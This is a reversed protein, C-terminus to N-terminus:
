EEKKRGFPDYPNEEDRDLAERRHMIDIAQDALGVALAISRLAFFGVAFVLLKMFRGKGRMHLMYCVACVGQMVFVTDFIQSFVYLMTSMREPALQAGLFFVLLTGGLVRGWGKPLRWTHVREYPVEIGRALASKRLMMQGLVGAAASGTVMQAPLELRLGSDLIMAIMNIMEARAQEPLVFAASAASLDVGEPLPLVGMQVFLLLLSDAMTGMGDFMERMLQTFATVVDSGTVVTLLTVVAGMSIFMTGMSVGASLWFPMRREVTIVSAAFVPVFLLLASVLGVTGFLTGGMGVCIGACVVASVPGVYGLLVLLVVPTLALAAPLMAAMGVVPTIILCVVISLLTLGWRNKRRFLMVKQNDM